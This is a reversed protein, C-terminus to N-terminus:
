EGIPTIDILTAEALGALDGEGAARLVIPTTGMSLLLGLDAGNAFLRLPPAGAAPPLQVIVPTTTRLHLFTPADVSVDVQQVAGALMLRLRGLAQKESASLRVDLRTVGAAAFYQKFIRGRGLTTAADEGLPALALGLEGDTGATSLILLRDADSDQNLALVV